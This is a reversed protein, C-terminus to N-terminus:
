TALHIFVSNLIKTMHVIFQQLNPHAITFLIEYFDPHTGDAISSHSHRVPSLRPCTMCFHEKQSLLEVVM